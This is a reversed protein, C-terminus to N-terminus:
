LNSFDDSKSHNFYIPSNSFFLPHAHHKRHIVRYRCLIYYHIYYLSYVASLWLMKLSPCPLPAPNVSFWRPSLHPRFDHM